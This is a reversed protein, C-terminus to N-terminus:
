PSLCRQTGVAKRRKILDRWASQKNKQKIWKTSTFGFDKQIKAVIILV